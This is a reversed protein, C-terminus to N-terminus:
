PISSIAFSTLRKAGWTDHTSYLLFISFAGKKQDIDRRHTLAMSIFQLHKKQGRWFGKAVIREDGERLLQLWVQHLTTNYFHKM